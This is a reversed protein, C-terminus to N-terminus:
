KVVVKKGNVIYLGKKLSSHLTFLSFNAEASSVKRGQLDYVKNNMTCQENYMSNVGTVEADNIVISFRSAAATQPLALYCSYAAATTATTLVFVGDKLVYNKTGTPLAANETVGVFESALGSLTVDNAAYIRFRKDTAVNENYLLMPTNKAIVTQLLAVDDGDHHSERVDDVLVQSSAVLHAEVGPSQHLQLYFALLNFRRLM